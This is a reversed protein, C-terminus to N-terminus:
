KLRFLVANEDLIEYTYLKEVDEDKEKMLGYTGDWYGAVAGDYGEPVRFFFTEETVLVGSNLWESSFDRMFICETYDVGHFNVTHKERGEGDETKSDQWTEISYYDDWVSDTIWGYNRANDDDFIATASVKRWEYGELAELGNEEDSELIEYDHFTLSGAARRSSDLYCRASFDYAVGEETHVTMGHEVYSPVLVDGETEGCVSCTKPDQYNAEVWTHGTAEGETKGCHSCTRPETCTAETWVHLKEEQLGEVEEQKKRIDESQTQAYGKELIAAAQELDDLEIYVNAIGLYAEARKPDIDIAAQFAIVAEEYKGDELYRIGLDYQAQWALAMEEEKQAKTKGCAGMGAILLLLAVCIVAYEALLIRGKRGQGTVSETWGTQYNDRM